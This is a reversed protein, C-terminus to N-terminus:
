LHTLIASEKKFSRRENELNEVRAGSARQSFLYGQFGFCISLSPGRTAPALFNMEMDGFQSLIQGPENIPEEFSVVVIVPKPFAQNGLPLKIGRPAECGTAVAKRCLKGGGFSFFYVTAGLTSIKFNQSLLLISATM